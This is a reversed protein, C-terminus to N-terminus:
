ACQEIPLPVDIASSLGVLPGDVGAVWLGGRQRREVEPHQEFLLAVGLASPLGVLLGDVGAM